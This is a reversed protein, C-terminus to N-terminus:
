CADAKEVRPTFVVTDITDADRPLFFSTEERRQQNERNKIPQM